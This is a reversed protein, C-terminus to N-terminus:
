SISTLIGEERLITEVAEVAEYVMADCHPKKEKGLQANARLLDKCEIMGDHNERIMRVFRNAIAPEELGAAGLAMLGGTIVGCVSGMKMGGGFHAGMRYAQEVSIGFDPAFPLLVSQACNYHPSAIARLEKAKELYKSM